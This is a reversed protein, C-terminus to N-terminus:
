PDLIDHVTQPKPAPDHTDDPCNHFWHGEPILMSIGTGCVNCRAVEIHEDM